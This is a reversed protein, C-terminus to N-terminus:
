DKEYGFYDFDKKFMTYIRDKNENTITEKEDTEKMFENHTNKHLKTFVIHKHLRNDKFKQNCIDIIYKCDKEFTEIKGIFDICGNGKVFNYQLLPTEHIDEWNTQNQKKWHTKCGREIWQNLTINMYEPINLSRHYYYWSKIRSYPNRVFTFVFLQSLDYKQELVDFRQHNEHLIYHNTKEEQDDDRNKGLGFMEVITNTACRPISVFAGVKIM